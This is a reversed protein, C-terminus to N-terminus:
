YRLCMLIQSSTYGRQALFRYQRSRDKAVKPLEDGFKRCRLSKAMELWSEEDEILFASIQEDSLGKRRLESRIRVPGYSKASRSRIYSELFREDSQLGEEKLQELVPLPNADSYRHTLKEQLEYFSHERRALLDMAARRIDKDSVEM